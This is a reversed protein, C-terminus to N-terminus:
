MEKTAEQPQKGEPVFTCSLQFSVGEPIEKTQGLSVNNFYASQNLNNYFNSVATYTTAKGNLTIVNSKESLSDLWLFDPLNRSIQDLILVPVTQNKKLQLIINVKRELLDRRKQYLDGKKRVEELRKLEKDARENEAKLRRTQRDLSYYWGAVVIFSLVIIGILILGRWWGEGREITIIPAREKAPRREALLNIKIM